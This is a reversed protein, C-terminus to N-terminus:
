LDFNKFKSISIVKMKSDEFKINVHDLKNTLVIEENLSSDMIFIKNSNNLKFYYYSNGDKINQNIKIIQGNKEKLEISSSINLSQGKSLIKSKYDRLAVKKNDGIGVISFHKVNVFAIKKVLGGSDKLTLIYTPEGLVNYLIPATSKYQLDQVIGEASKKADKETAGSVKYFITEKTKTNVLTFGNTGGEGKSSKMGTYWYSNNDKGYILSIGDTTTMTNEGTFHANFWSKFSNRDTKYMGWDSLQTEVIEEPQIRDVWKPTDKISYENIEGTTANVIITGIVEKGYYGIQKDYKSIVWFPEGNNNIEFTFDEFGQSIYGNLYIHRQINESFYGEKQYIINGKNLILKADNENTANVMVYGPTGNDANLWKFFGDHELPAVWYLEKNVLQISFKNLKTISALATQENLLRNGIQKALAQDVTRVKKIDIPSMDENFDIIKIKTKNELLSGYSTAHFMKTSSFFPIIAAFVIGISVLMLEVKRNKMDENLTNIPDMLYLIIGGFLFMLPLVFFGYSYTPMLFYTGGIFFLTLFLMKITISQIRSM